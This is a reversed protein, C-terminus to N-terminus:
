SSSPLRRAFEQKFKRSRGDPFRVLLSDGDLQQVKGAGYKPLM